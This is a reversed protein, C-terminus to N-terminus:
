THEHQMYTSLGTSTSSALAENRKAINNIRQQQEDISGSTDNNRTNDISTPQRRSNRAAVRVPWADVFSPGCLIRAYCCSSVVVIHISSDVSAHISRYASIYISRYMSLCMSLRISLYVILRPSLYMSLDIAVDISLCVPIYISQYNSSCTYLCASQSFTCCKYM